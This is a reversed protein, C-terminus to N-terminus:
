NIGLEHFYLYSLININDKDNYLLSKPPRLRLLLTLYLAIIETIM